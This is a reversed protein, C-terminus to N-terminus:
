KVQEYPLPATAKRQLTGTQGIAWALRMRGACGCRGSYPGADRRGPLLRRFGADVWQRIRLWGPLSCRGRREACCRVFAAFVGPSDAVGRLAERRFIGGSAAPVACAGPEMGRGRRLAGAAAGGAPSHLGSLGGAHPLAHPHVGGGGQAAPAREGQASLHLGEGGAGSAVERGHPYVSIGQQERGYALWGRGRAAPSDQSIDVTYALISHRDILVKCLPLPLPPPSLGSLAGGFHPVIRRWIVPKGAAMLICHSGSGVCFCRPRSHYKSISRVHLLSLRKNWPCCGAYAARKNKRWDSPTWCSKWCSRTM